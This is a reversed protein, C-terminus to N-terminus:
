LPGVSRGGYYLRLIIVQEAEVVFAIAIRREFGVIRLGPRIDDRGHGREAAIEFSRCYAELRDLYALAVPRGARETIWDHLQLLDTRASSSFVVTRRKM